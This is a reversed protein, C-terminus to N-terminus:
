FIEMMPPKGYRTVCEDCIYIAGEIAPPGEAKCSQCLALAIQEKGHDKCNDCLVFVHTTENPAAGFPTGCNVCFCRQYRLHFPGPLELRERRYDSTLRADPLDGALDFKPLSM